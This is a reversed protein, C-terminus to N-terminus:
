MNMLMITWWKLTLQELLHPPIDNHNVQIEKNILSRLMKHVHIDSIQTHKWIDTLIKQRNKFIKPKIKWLELDEPNKISVFEKGSVHNILIKM